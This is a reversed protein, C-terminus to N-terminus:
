SIQAILSKKNHEFLSILLAHTLIVTKLFLAFYITILCFISIWGYECDMSVVIM